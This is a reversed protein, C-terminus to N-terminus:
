APIEAREIKLRPSDEIIQVANAFMARLNRPADDPLPASLLMMSRAALKYKIVPVFLSSFLTTPCAQRIREVETNRIETRNSSSLTFRFQETELRQSKEARPPTSGFTAVQERIQTRIHEEELAIEELRLALADLKSPALRQM